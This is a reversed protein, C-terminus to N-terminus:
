LRRPVKLCLGGSTITSSRIFAIENQDLEEFGLLPRSLVTTTLPKRNSVRERMCM